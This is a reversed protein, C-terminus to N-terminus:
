GRGAARAVQLEQPSLSSLGNAASATRPQGPAKVGSAALEAEARATWPGARLGAFIACAQALPERAAAPEGARRRAEGLCLLTRVQEFPIPGIEALAALSEAFHAVSPEAGV